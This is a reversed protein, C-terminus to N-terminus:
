EAEKINENILAYKGKQFLFNDVFKAGHEVYSKNPYLIKQIHEYNHFYLLISVQM